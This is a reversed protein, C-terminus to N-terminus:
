LATHTHTDIVVKFSTWHSHLRRYFHIMTFTLVRHTHEALLMKMQMRGNRPPFKKNAKEQKNQAVQYTYDCWQSLKHSILYTICKILYILNRHLLVIHSRTHTRKSTRYMDFPVWGGGTRWGCVVNFLSVKIPAQTHTHTAPLPQLHHHRHHHHQYFCAIMLFDRTHAEWHNGSETHSANRQPTQTKECSRYCFSSFRYVIDIKSFM